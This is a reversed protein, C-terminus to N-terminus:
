GTNSMRWCRRPLPARPRASHRRRRPAGAPCGAPQGGTGAVAGAPPLDHHSRPQPRGPVQSRRHQSDKASHFRPHRELRRHRGPHRHGPRCPEPLERRSRLQPRDSGREVPVIARQRVRRATGAAPHRGARRHSGGAGQGAGPPHRPQRVRAPRDVPCTPSTSSCARASTSSGWAPAPSARSWAVSPSPRSHRDRDVGRGPARADDAGGSPRARWPEGPACAFLASRGRAGHQRLVSVSSGRSQARGDPCGGPVPGGAAGDHADLGNGHPHHGAGGGAPPRDAGRGGADFRSEHQHRRRRRRTAKAERGFVERVNQIVSRLAVIAAVGVAICVFFFLLRRWAARTERVAMQLVFSM